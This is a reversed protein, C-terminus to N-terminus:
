DGERSRVRAATALIETTEQIVTPSPNNLCAYGNRTTDGAEAPPVIRILEQTGGARDCWDEVRDLRRVAARPAGAAAQVYFVLAGGEVVPVWPASTAHPSFTVVVATRPEGDTGLATHWGAPTSRSLGSLPLDTFGPPAWLVRPAAAARQGAPSPADRLQATVAAAAVLAATVGALAVRRRRRAVVRQRIERMRRPNSVSPTIRGLAVRLLEEETHGEEHEEMDEVPRTM